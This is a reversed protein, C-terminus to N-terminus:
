VVFGIFLFAYCVKISKLFYKIVWLYMLCFPVQTLTLINVVNLGVPRLAIFFDYVSYVSHKLLFLLYKLLHYYPSNQTFLNM